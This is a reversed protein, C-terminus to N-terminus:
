QRFNEPGGRIGELGHLLREAPTQPTGRLRHWASRLVSQPRMLDAVAALVLLATALVILGRLSRARSAM